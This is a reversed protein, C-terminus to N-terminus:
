NGESTLGLGLLDLLLYFFLVLVVNARDLLNAQRVSHLLRGGDAVILLLELFLSSVTQLSRSVLHAVELIDVILLLSEHLEIHSLSREQNLLLSLLEDVQVILNSVQM